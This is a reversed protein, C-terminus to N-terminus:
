EEVLWKVADPESMFSRVQAGYQNALLVIYEHSVRIEGSDSLLAVRYARNGALAKFYASIGYEEVKFLPKSDRVSILVRGCRHQEAAATVAQLFERTELATQRDFLEARIHDGKFTIRSLAARTSQM